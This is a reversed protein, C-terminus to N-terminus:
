SFSLLSLSHRPPICCPKDYSFEQQECGKVSFGANTVTRNVIKMFYFKCLLLGPDLQQLMNMMVMVESPLSKEKNAKEMWKAAKEYNKTTGRGESYMKSLKLCVRFLGDQPWNTETKTAKKYLKLAANEDKELGGVGMEYLTGLSYMAIGVGQNASAEFLERAKFFDRRTGPRNGELYWLGLNFQALKHNKAAAKEYLIKAQKYNAIDYELDSALGFELEGNSM